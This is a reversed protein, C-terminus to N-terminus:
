SFHTGDLSIARLTGDLIKLVKKLGVKNPFLEKPILISMEIFCIIKSYISESRKFRFINISNLFIFIVALLKYINKRRRGTTKLIQSM